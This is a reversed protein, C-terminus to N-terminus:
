TCCVVGEDQISGHFFASSMYVPLHLWQKAYERSLCYFADRMAKSPDSNALRYRLKPLVYQSLLLLKLSAEPM